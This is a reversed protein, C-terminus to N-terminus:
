DLFFLRIFVYLLIVTKQIAEEVVNELADHCVLIGSLNREPLGCLLGVNDFDEAQSIAILKEIEAIVKQITM